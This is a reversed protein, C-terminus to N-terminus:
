CQYTENEVVTDQRTYVFDWGQSLIQCLDMYNLLVQYYVSTLSLSLCQSLSKRFGRTRQETDM